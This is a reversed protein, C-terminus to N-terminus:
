ATGAAEFYTYSEATGLYILGRAEMADVFAAVSEADIGDALEAAVARVTKRAGGVFESHGLCQQWVRRGPENLDYALYRRDGTQCYVVVHGPLDGSVMRFAPNQVPVSTWCASAARRRVEAVGGIVAVAAVGGGLGMIKLFRRRDMTALQPTERPMPERSM